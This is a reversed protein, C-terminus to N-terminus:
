YDMKWGADMVRKACGFGSDALSPNCSYPGTEALIDPVLQGNNKLMFYFIDRGWKNPKKIGNVDVIIEFFFNDSYSSNQPYLFVITGDALTFELFDSANFNSRDNTEGLASMPESTHLEDAYTTGNEADHYSIVKFYKSFERVFDPQAEEYLFFGDEDKRLLSTLTTNSIKGVGDTAMAQRFGNSLTSYTKKLQTVYQNKQYNATVTPITLAAVVGIIALTILVEALTFARKKNLM